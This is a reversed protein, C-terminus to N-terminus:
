SCVELVLSYLQPISPDNCEITQSVTLVIFKLITYIDKDKGPYAIVRYMCDSFGDLFIEPSQTYYKALLRSYYKHKSSSRQCEDFIKPITEEEIINSM